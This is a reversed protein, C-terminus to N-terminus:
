RTHGILVGFGFSIVIGNRTGCYTKGLHFGWGCRPRLELSLWTRSKSIDGISWYKRM